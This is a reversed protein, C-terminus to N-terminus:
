MIGLLVLRRSDKDGARVDPNNVIVADDRNHPMQERCQTNTAVTALIQLTWRDLTSLDKSELRRVGAMKATTLTTM